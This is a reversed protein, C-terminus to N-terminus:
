PQAGCFCYYYDHCCNQKKCVQQIWDHLYNRSLNCSRDGLHRGCVLYSPPPHFRKQFVRWSSRSRSLIDVIVSFYSKLSKPSNVTIDASTSMFCRTGEFIGAHRRMERETAAESPRQTCRTQFLRSFRKEKGVPGCM